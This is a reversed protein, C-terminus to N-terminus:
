QIKCRLQETQQIYGEILKQVEGDADGNGAVRVSYKVLLVHLTSFILQEYYYFLNITINNHM